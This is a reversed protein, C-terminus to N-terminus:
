VPTVLRGFNDSGAALMFRSTQGDSLENWLSFLSIRERLAGEHWLELSEILDNNNFGTDIRVFGDAPGGDLTLTIDLFEGNRQFLYDTQLDDVEYPGRGIFCLTDQGSQDSVLDSGDGFYHIFTDNGAGGIMTDNNEYGTLFDDGAGGQLVNELGNGFIFDDGNGGIGSFVQTGHGVVVESTVVGNDRAYSRGGDRLDITFDHDIVDNGVVINRAEFSITSLTTDSSLTANIFETGTDAPDLLTSGYWDQLALWDASGLNQPLLAKPHNTNGMVTDLRSLSNFSLGLATGVARLMRFQELESVEGEFDATNFILDGGRGGGPLYSLFPMGLDTVSFINIDADQGDAAAQITRETLFNFEDFVATIAAGLGVFGNIAQFDGFENAGYESPRSTVFRYTIPDPSGVWSSGSNLEAPAVANSIAFKQWESWERSVFARIILDGPQSVLTQDVSWLDIESAIIGYQSNAPMENGDRMLPVTAYVQFSFPDLGKLDVLDALPVMASEELLLRSTMGRGFLYNSEIPTRIKEASISYGGNYADIKTRAILYYTGSAEAKFYHEVLADDSPMRLGKGAIVAQSPDRIILNPTALFDLGAARMQVHLIDGQQLQIKHWDFDTFQSIYDTAEAYGHEDFSLMSTTTSDPATQDAVLGIVEYTGTGGNGGVAVQITESVTSDFQVFGDGAGLSEGNRFLELSPNTLTYTGNDGVVIFRYDRGAQVRFDFTDIDDVVEIEDIKGYGDNLAIVPGTSRTDDKLEVANIQYLTQNILSGQFASVFHRGSYRATYRFHINSSTDFVTESYGNRDFFTLEPQITPATGEFTLYFLYTRGYELEVLHWDTDVTLQNDPDCNEFISENAQGVFVQGDTHIDASVDVCGM